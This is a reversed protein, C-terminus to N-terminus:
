AAYIWPAPGGVEERARVGWASHLQPAAMIREMEQAQVSDGGLEYGFWTQALRAWDRVAASDSHAAAILAVDAALQGRESWYGEEHGLRWISEALSAAERGNLQGHQWGSFQAYLEAMGNLRQDSLAALDDSLSCVSCQCDFGYQDKLFQRRVHRPRKTDTYTTLLEQGETISKLAHVVLVGEDDRWTYVVNFANSCGHNLRAMRPFIGVGHSGAAVANTQFIALALEENYRSTGKKLGEPFGVYSLNYYSGRQRPSLTALSALLIAGPSSTSVKPPVLFLPKERLVLEGRSINRAAVVGMGRGPLKAVHVPVMYVEEEPIEDEWLMHVCYYYVGGAMLLLYALALLKWSVASAAPERVVDKETTAVKATTTGEAKSSVQRRRAQNAM